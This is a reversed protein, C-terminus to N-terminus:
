IWFFFRKIKGGKKEGNKKEESLSWYKQRRSGEM